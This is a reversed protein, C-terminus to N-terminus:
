KVPFGAKEWAYAGGQMDYVEKFGLECLRKVARASRYGSMCYIMVPKDKKLQALMKQEFDKDYYNINKAGELYGYKLEDPDRIDVLQEDKLQAMKESFSAPSLLVPKCSSQADVPFFSAVGLILM